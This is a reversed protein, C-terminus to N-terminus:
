VNTPMKVKKTLMGTTKIDKRGNSDEDDNPKGNATDYAMPLDNVNNEVSPSKLNIVSQAMKDNAIAKNKRRRRRKRLTM